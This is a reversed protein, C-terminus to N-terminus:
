RPVRWVESYLCGVVNSAGFKKAGFAMLWNDATEAIIMLVGLVVLFGPSIRTGFDTILAYLLASVFIVAVGPLGLPIILLGTAIGLFLLFHGLLSMPNESVAAAFEPHLYRPKM